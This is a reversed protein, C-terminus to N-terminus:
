SRRNPFMEGQWGSLIRKDVQGWQFQVLLGALDDVALARADAILATRASQRASRFESSASRHPTLLPARNPSDVLLERNEIGRAAVEIVLDDGGPLHQALRAALEYVHTLRYIAAGIGLKEGPRVDVPNRFIGAREQWDERFAAYHVFQASQYFRFYEIIEGFSVAHEVFDGKVTPPESRDIHPFYWGSLRVQISELLPALATVESIRREEFTTPRIATWWYGRSKIEAITRDVEATM